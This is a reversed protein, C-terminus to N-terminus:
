NNEALVTMINNKQVNVLVFTSGGGTFIGETKLQQARMKMNM